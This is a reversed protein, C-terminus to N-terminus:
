SNEICQVAHDMTLVLMSLKEEAQERSLKGKEDPFFHFVRNRCELWTQWMERATEEGCLRVVDDFIWYRDRQQQRVDPNLARGVRFRKGFYTKKSILGFDYFYKKLFGEYAKAMPFVIYAYDIFDDIPDNTAVKEEDQELLQIATKVLEQQWDTLYQYWAQSSFDQM